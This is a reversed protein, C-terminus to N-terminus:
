FDNSALADHISANAEHIAGTPANFSPKATM